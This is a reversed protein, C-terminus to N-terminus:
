IADGSVSRHCLMGADQRRYPLSTAAYSWWEFALTSATTLATDNTGPRALLWNVVVKRFVVECWPYYLERKKYSKGCSLIETVRWHKHATVFPTASVKAVGHSGSLAFAIASILERHTRNHRANLTSVSVM